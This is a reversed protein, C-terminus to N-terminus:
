VGLVACVAVCLGGLVAFFDRQYYEPMADPGKTHRRENWVCLTWFAAILLVTVASFLTGINLKVM